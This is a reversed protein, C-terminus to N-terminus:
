FLVESEIGGRPAGLKIRQPTQKGSGGGSSSESRDRKTSKSSFHDRISPQNSGAKRVRKTKRKTKKKVEVWADSEQGSLVGGDFDEAFLGEGFSPETVSIPQDSALRGKLRNIQGVLEESSALNSPSGFGSAEVTLSPYKETLPPLLTDITLDGLHGADDECEMGTLHDTSPVGFYDRGSVCPEKGATASGQVVNAADSGEVDCAAAVSGGLVSAAASGELDSAAANGELDSAAASGELDSAAVSGELDNAAVSGELDSAMADDELDDATGSGESEDATGDGESEEATDSGESEDATGSGESGHDEDDADSIESDDHGDRRGTVTDDSEEDTGPNPNNEEIFSTEGSVGDGGEPTADRGTGNDTSVPVHTDNDNQAPHQVDGNLGSDTVTDNGTSTIVNANAETSEARGDEEGIFSM